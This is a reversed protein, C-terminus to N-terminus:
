KMLQYATHLWAILEENIDFPKEIKLENHFRNKSIQETITIRPSKIPSSSVINLVIYNKRPHVGAFAKGRKLHVSTKKEEVIIKGFKQISDIFTQYLIKVEPTMDM